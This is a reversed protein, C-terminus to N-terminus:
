FKTSVPYKVEHISKLRSPNSSAGPLPYKTAEKVMEPLVCGTKLHALRDDLPVPVPLPIVRSANPCRKVEPEQCALVNLGPPMEAVVGPVPANTAGYALYVPSSESNEPAVDFGPSNPLQRILAM